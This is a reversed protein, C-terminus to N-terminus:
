ERELARDVLKHAFETDGKTRAIKDKAKKASQSIHDQLFEIVKSKDYEADTERKKEVFRNIKEIKQKKLLIDNVEDYIQSEAQLSEDAVKRMGYKRFLMILQMKARINTESKESLKEVKDLDEIVLKGQKIKDKVRNIQDIPLQYRGFDIDKPIKLRGEECDIRSEEFLINGKLNELEDGLVERITKAKPKEKKKNDGAQSVIPKAVVKEENKQLIQSQLIANEQRASKELIAAQKKAVSQAIKKELEEQRKREETEEKEQKETIAEYINKELNWNLINDFIQWDFARARKSLIVNQIKNLAKVKEADEKFDKKAQKLIKEATKISKQKNYIALLAITREWNTLEEDNQKIQEIFESTMDNYYLRTKIVDLLHIQRDENEKITQAEYIENNETEGIEEIAQNKYIDEQEEKSEKRQIQKLKQQVKELQTEFIQKDRVTLKEELIFLFRRGIEEAEELSEKTGERMLIHVHQTQIVPSDPFEICIEKVEELSKKDGKQILLNIRKSQAIKYQNCFKEKARESVNENQLNEKCIEIVELLSKEDAKLILISALKEQMVENDKYEEKRCIKEAEGLSEEDGKQVLISVLQGQIVENEKFEEKRCIEEAKELSQRDGRQILIQIRKSQAEQYRYKFIKKLKNSVEEDQLNQECVKIIKELSKEDEKQLLIEIKKFQAIKYQKRFISKSKESIKQDQLVEKCLSEAEELSEETGKKILITVLQSQIVENKRFKEKRCIEEAEELSREDGRKILINALQGQIIENDKWEEKRCIEEAEPLKGQKILEQIEKSEKKVKQFKFYEESNKWNDLIVTNIGTDQSIDEIKEQKIMRKFIATKLEESYAM